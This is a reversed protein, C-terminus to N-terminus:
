SLEDIFYGVINVGPKKIFLVAQETKSTLEFTEQGLQDSIRQRIHAQSDHQQKIKATAGSALFITVDYLAM